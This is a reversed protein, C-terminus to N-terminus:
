FKVSVRDYIYIYIYIYNIYVNVSLNVLVTGSKAANVNDIHVSFVLIYFLSFSFWPLAAYLHKADLFFFFIGFSDAKM